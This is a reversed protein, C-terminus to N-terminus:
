HINRQSNNEDNITLIYPIGVENFVYAVQNVTYYKGAKPGINPCRAKIISIMADDGIGYLNALDLTTARKIEITIGNIIIKYSIGTKAFFEEVQTVTYYRGIREGINPCHIKIWLKVTKVCMDNQLAFDSESYPKVEIIKHIVKYM